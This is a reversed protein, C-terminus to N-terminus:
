TGTARQHATASARQEDILTKLAPLASFPFERKEGNKTTGQDLWLMGAKLDVHSWELPLVESTVRWGPSYAFRMGPRLYQPLEALGAEFDATEFFGTRVNKPDRIVISPMSTLKRKRIALKFARRLIALEYNVTARAAKTELRALEYET